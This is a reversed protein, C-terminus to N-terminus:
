VPDTTGPEKGQNTIGAKKRTRAAAKGEGPPTNKDELSPAADGLPTATSPEGLSEVTLDGLVKVMKKSTEVIFAGDNAEIESIITAKVDPPAAKTIRDVMKKMLFTNLTKSGASTALSLNAELEELFGLIDFDTPYVTAFSEEWTMGQQLCYFKILRNEADQLSAAKFQLAAEVSLFQRQKTPQKGGTDSAESATLGVMRFIETIHNCITDWIASIQQNDPSIYQPPQGASAPFTFAWSTGLKRFLSTRVEGTTPDINEGDMGAMEPAYFDGDDPIVLQSFTQRQIQETLLSCWNFIARNVYAIDNILSIGISGSDLRNRVRVAPVLGFENSGKESFNKDQMSWRMWSKPDIYFVRFANSSSRQVSADSDEYFKYKYLAWNFRGLADTSWDVAELPTYLTLYPLLEGDNIDAVTYTAKTKQPADLMVDVFGFVSSLSSVGKMFTDMDSGKGDVNQLWAKIRPDETRKPTEKFVFNTYTEVVRRCYNLYYALKVRTEYMTDEEFPHQVIYEEANNLYDQGGLYSALLLSYHNSYAEYDPHKRKELDATNLGAM